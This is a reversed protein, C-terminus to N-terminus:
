CLWYILNFMTGGVAVAAITLADGFHGALATDTISLVPVAINTVISPLSLALISRLLERSKDSSPKSTEM